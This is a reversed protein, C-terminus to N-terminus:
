HSVDSIVLVCIFNNQFCHHLFRPKKCRGCRFGSSITNLQNVLLLTLLLLDTRYNVYLNEGDVELVASESKGQAAKVM